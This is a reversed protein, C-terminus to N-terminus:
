KEDKKINSNIFIMWGKKEAYKKIMNELKIIEILDIDLHLNDCIIIKIEWENSKNKIKRKKM